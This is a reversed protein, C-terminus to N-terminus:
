IKGEKKANAIVADLAAEWDAVPSGSEPNDNELAEALKAQGTKTTYEIYPPAAGVKKRVSVMIGEGDKEGMEALKTRARYFEKQLNWAQLDSDVFLSFRGREKVKAILKRYMALDM